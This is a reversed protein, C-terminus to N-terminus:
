KVWPFDTISSWTKQFIGDNEHLPKISVNDWSGKVLYERGFFFGEQNKGTVSKGIFDAIKGMITGAIPVADSSKPVVKIVHDVTQTILDTDGTITIKAPVADIFLNQTVAKGNHLNFDGNISNFALGEDFIDSFDLQLRKIWQEIALIGLVRGFGPEISLIRGSKLNVKMYGSLDGVTLQWPASNWNLRFDITGSTENFDKTINLKRFFLDARKMTLKGQIKTASSLNINKWNGTLDLTEDQGELSLRKINVGQPTRQTELTLEGLNASQWLTKKSHINPLTKIEQGSANSQLQFQKLASLNIMALDLTTPKSLTLDIPIQVNGQAVLGEIEGKWYDGNRKLDLSFTGLRTKKWLASDSHIKIASIHMVVNKGSEDTTALWDQLPLQPKNIELKIGPTLPFNVTGSGLLVHGSLVKQNQTSLRLAAQLENNYNIKIPIEEKGTFTILGSLPKKQAQAKVLGGPLSLEIGDLDSRFNAQLTSNAVSIDPLILQLQYGSEGRAWTYLPQQLLREVDQILFKGNLNIQTQRTSNNNINIQVPKALAIAKIDNAFIGQNDFTIQGNIKTIPIDILNTALKADNLLTVAKVQIQEELKFPVTMDLSVKAAGSIKTTALVPSVRATLPSEQLAELMDVIEGEGEGKVILRPNAILNPMMIETKGIKIKGTQGHEFTGTINDRNFNVQGTIGNIQPWDQHYKLEVESLNLAAQFVGSGDNFPFNDANGYFLLDGRTIKGSRLALTLWRNLKENMLQTPLYHVLLSVDDSKLSTQLDIFPKEGTKSLDVQLRNESHFAPCDLTISSGSIQWNDATQRWNFLGNIRDFSLPRAFTNEALIKVNNSNLVVAGIQDTGKIKGDLNAIGSLTTFPKFTLGQFRGAMAFNSTEPEAYLAFNQLWGKLNAMNLKQMHQKPLNGIFKTLQSAEALDLQTAFLKFNGNSSAGTTSGMTVIADRWKIGSHYDTTETELQFHRFDIQWANQSLELDFESDLKKIPLHGYDERALVAEKLHTIGYTSIPLANRWESWIKFDASGSNIHIDEPLYASVLESLKIDHGEIFTHGVLKPSDEADGEFNAMVRLDGGYAPPLSSILNLRHQDSSNRISLDMDDFVIPKSNHLRDQWTIRSHLLTYQGQFLWLPQGPKPKLGDVAFHGENNRYVSLEAEVLTVSSSTLLEQNLVFRGLDIGLRIEKIHIAPKETVIAPAIDINKLVLEPTIGRMNAGLSGLKVPVGVIVAIRTELDAKYKDIGVLMLRVVSLGIATLLLTWFILHRTARTVHHIM